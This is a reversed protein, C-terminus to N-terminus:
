VGDTLVGRAVTTANPGPGVAVSCSVRQILLGDPLVDVSAAHRELLRPVAPSEAVAESLCLSGRETADLLADAEQVTRGFYDLRGNINTVMM